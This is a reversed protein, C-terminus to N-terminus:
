LFHNKEVILPIRFKLNLLSFSWCGFLCISVKGTMVSAFLFRGGLGFSYIKNAVTKITKGYDATRKLELMGRDGSFLFALCILFSLEVLVGLVYILWAWVAPTKLSKSFESCWLPLSVESIINGKSELMSLSFPKFLITRCVVEHHSEGSRM